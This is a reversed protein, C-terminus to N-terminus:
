KIQDPDMQQLSVRILVFVDAVALATFLAGIILMIIGVATAGGGAGSVMGLGNIYGSCCM